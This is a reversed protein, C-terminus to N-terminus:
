RKKQDLYSRFCSTLYRVIDTHLAYASRNMVLVATSELVTEIEVLGNAKLTKGTSVLDLICDSLGLVPAIEISGYLKIVECSKGQYFFYNQALNPYKTAVKLHASKEVYDVKETPAALSLRCDGFDMQVPITLDYGREAMVDRGTIGADAGGQLVYTPVDQNRVLIIRYSDSRDTFTLERGGEPIYFDAFGSQRFFDISEEALRGAPLAVTFKSM